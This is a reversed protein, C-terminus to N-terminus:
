SAAGSPAADSPAHATRARHIHWRTYAFAAILAGYPIIYRFLVHDVPWLAAVLTSATQVAFAVMWVTSILYNARVFAPAHWFREPTSERAYQLTFPEGVAISVLAIATLAGNSLPNAFREFWERDATFAALALLAFFVLTGADLIKLRRHVISPVALVVAAVFAGVAALRFTEGAFVWFVIWPAFGILLGM